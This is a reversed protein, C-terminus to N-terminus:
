GVASRVPREVHDGACAEVFDIVIRNFRDSEEVNPSHASDEFVELRARPIADTLREGLAVPTLTDHRGWIILTPAAVRELQDDLHEDGYVLRRLLETRSTEDRRATRLLDRLVFTPLRISRQFNARILLRVDDVTQPLLARELALDPEFQLGAADVLVLREVRDPHAAAYALSIWGGLSHGALAVRELGLRDLLAHLCRVQLAIGNDLPARDSAGFGPLDPAIVDFRAAFALLQGFWNIAAETGFGHVLVLPVGRGGRWYSVTADPLALRQRRYGRARLRAHVATRLLGTPRRYGYAGLAAAGLMWALPDM